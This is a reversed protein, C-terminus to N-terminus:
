QSKPSIGPVTSRRSPTQAPNGGFAERAIESIGGISGIVSAAEVPLMLVKQNPSTALQELAKIYNNAVFYNIA